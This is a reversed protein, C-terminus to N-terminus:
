YYFSSSLLTLIFSGEDKTMILSPDINRHAAEMEAFKDNICIYIHQIIHIHDINYSNLEFISYYM